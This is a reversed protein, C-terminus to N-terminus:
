WSVVPFRSSYYAKNDVTSLKTMSCRQAQPERTYKAKRNRPNTVIILVHKLKRSHAQIGKADYASDMLNYCNTVRQQTMTALPIAAQSDHLSAFSVLCSIPVGGDAVVM